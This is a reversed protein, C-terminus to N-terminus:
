GNKLANIHCHSHSPNLRTNAIQEFGRLVFTYKAALTTAIFVMPTSKPSRTASAMAGAKGLQTPLKLTLEYAEVFSLWRVFAGQAFDFPYAGVCGVCYAGLRPLLYV